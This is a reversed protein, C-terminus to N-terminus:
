RTCMYKYRFVVFPGRYCCRSFKAILSETLTASSRFCTAFDGVTSQQSTINIKTFVVAIAKSMKKRENQNKKKAWSNGWCTSTFSINEYKSQLKVSYDLHSKSYIFPFMELETREDSSHINNNFQYKTPVLNLFKIFFSSKKYYHLQYSKLSLNKMLSGPFSSITLRQTEFSKM